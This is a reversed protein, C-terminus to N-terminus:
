DETRMEYGYHEFYFGLEGNIKGRLRPTLTFHNKVYDKQGAVYAEFRPRAAEFGDLGLAEYIGGLCAVPDRELEEYAVTVMQGPALEPELAFLERYMRGFIWVISDELLLDFDADPKPSLQLIEMQKRFMHITSMVATYPDRHLNIFQADPWLSLLERMHGTNDPSKLMLRRGGCHWSIKALLYSYDRKWRAQEKPPLDSVFCGSFYDRFSIPFAIMHIISHPSFTALGFTEEIPLDLTYKMNDMPRAGGLVRREFATVPGRLLTSVNVATTSVPDCWGFQPDQALINQLYTTGSRWHGVVYLPGRVPGAARIKRDFLLKELGAVPFLAGSVLTILAAMPIRRPLIRFRNHALLRLWNDFRCGILYHAPNIWRKEPAKPM